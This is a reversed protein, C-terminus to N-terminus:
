LEHNTVGVGGGGTPATRGKGDSNEPTHHACGAISNHCRPNMAESGGGGVPVAVCQAFPRGTGAETGGRGDGAGRAHPRCQIPRRCLCLPLTASRPRSGGGAEPFVPGGPSGEAAGAVADPQSATRRTRPGTCNTRTTLASTRISISGASAVRNEPGATGPSPFPRSGGPLEVLYQQLPTFGFTYKIEFDALKGDPGDTRVLFRGDKRFFRSVVGDKSFESDHFNGLVSGESAEQM